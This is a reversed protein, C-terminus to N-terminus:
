AIFSRQKTDSGQSGSHLKLMEYNRPLINAIACINYSKRHIIKFQNQPKFFKSSCIGLPRYKVWTDDIFSVKNNLPQKYLVKEQLNFMVPKAYRWVITQWHIHPKSLARIPNTSREPKEFLFFCNQSVQSKPQFYSTILKIRSAYNMVIMIAEREKLLQRDSDNSIQLWTRPWRSGWTGQGAWSQDECVQLLGWEM